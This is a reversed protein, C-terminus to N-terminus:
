LSSLSALFSFCVAGARDKEGQFVKEEERGACEVEKKKM